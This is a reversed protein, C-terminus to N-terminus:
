NAQKLCSTPVDKTMRHVLSSKPYKSAPSGAAPSNGYQVEDHTNHKATYVRQTNTDWYIMNDMTARYGLFIRDHANPNLATGCQTSKRPTIQCGFTILGDLTPQRGTYAQYPTTDFGSHFSQNYLWVSHVLASSWLPIGLGTIYLLCRVKQKITQHPWEALRNQNSVDPATAKSSTDM